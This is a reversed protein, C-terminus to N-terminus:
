KKGILRKLEAIRRDYYDNSGPNIEREKELKAILEQDGVISRKYTEKLRIVKEEDMNFGRYIGYHNMM